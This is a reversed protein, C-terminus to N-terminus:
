DISQIVFKKISLSLLCHVPAFVDAVIENLIRECTQRDAAILAAQHHKNNEKYYISIDDDDDAAASAANM